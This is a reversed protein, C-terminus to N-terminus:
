GGADVAVSRRGVTLVITGDRDTRLTDVDHAALAAFKDFEATALTRAEARAIRTVDPVSTTSM